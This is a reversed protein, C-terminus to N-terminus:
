EEHRLLEELHHFQIPALEGFDDVSEDGVQDGEGGLQLAAVGVVNDGDSVHEFLAQRLQQFQGPFPVCPSPALELEKHDKLTDRGLRTSFQVLEDDVADVHSNEVM